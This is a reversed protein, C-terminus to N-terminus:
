FFPIFPKPAPAPPVPPITKEEGPDFLRILRAEIQGQENQPGVVVVKNDIKLDAAKIEKRGSLIKTTEAILVIREMDGAGKVVLSDSNIKIILGFTGHGSIFGGKGFDRWDGFFGGKPGAFNRHYNEAWRYSFGARKEGIIVGIGFILFVVTAAVLGVGVWKFVKCWVDRQKRKETTGGDSLKKEEDKVMYYLVFNLPKGRETEPRPVSCVAV